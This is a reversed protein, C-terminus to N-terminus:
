ATEDQQMTAYRMMRAQKKVRAMMIQMRMLVMAGYFSMFGGAMWLLPKLMASDLTPKGLRSISAPQHLTNWWDVSFKIIPINLAGILLLVAGVRLAQQEDDFARRLVMYGIYQVFLVLVSTLRADWVWWTGWIPQGWLAGSALCIATFIAGLPIAADMYIEAVRHRWVLAIFAAVAASTYIGLGLWASPVHIYMIRVADGQQYDAPSVVLSLYLGYVLCVSAMVGFLPLLVASLRHFRDLRAFHTIM